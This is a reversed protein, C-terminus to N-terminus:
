RKGALARFSGEAMKILENVGKARRPHIRLDHRHAFFPKRYHTWSRSPQRLERVLQEGAFIEAIVTKTDEKVNYSGAYAKLVEAPVKM